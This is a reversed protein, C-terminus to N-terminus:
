VLKKTLKLLIDSNERDSHVIYQVGGKLLIKHLVVGKNKNKFVSLLNYFLNTPLLFTPNRMGWDMTGRFESNKNIGVIEVHKIDKKDVVEVNKESDILKLGNEEIKHLRFHKFKLNKGIEIM